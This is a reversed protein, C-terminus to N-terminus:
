QSRRQILTYAESINASVIYCRISRNIYQRIPEPLTAVHRDILAQLTASGKYLYIAIYPRSPTANYQSGTAHHRPTALHYPPRSIVHCRPLTYLTVAHCVMYLPTAVDNSSWTTYTLLFNPNAINPNWIFGVVIADFRRKRGRLM